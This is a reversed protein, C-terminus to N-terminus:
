LSIYVPKSVNLPIARMPARGVKLIFNDDSTKKGKTNEKNAKGRTCSHINQILIYVCCTLCIEEMLHM